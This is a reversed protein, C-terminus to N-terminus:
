LLVDYWVTGGSTVPAVRPHPGSDETRIRLSFHQSFLQTPDLRRYLGHALVALGDGNEIFLTIVLGCLAEM